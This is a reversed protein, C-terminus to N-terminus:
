KKDSKHKELWAKSITLKYLTDKDTIVFYSKENPEVEYHIIPKHLQECVDVLETINAVRLKNKFKTENINPKKIASAILRDYEKLIKNVEFHYIDKKRKTNLYLYIVLILMILAVVSLGIGANFLLNNDIKTKSSSSIADNNNIGKSSIAIDLTQESLPIIVELKNTNDKKEDDIDKTSEVEMAVILNSDAVLAYDKKFNNAYKNYKNYDIDVEENIVFDKGDKLEAKEDLLTYVNEHLVKTSDDRDTIVIKATIKYNYAYNIEETSHLQYNFDVNVTNILSAIYKMGKPLFSEEYYNNEKLYVKYDASGKESYSVTREKEEKSTSEKFCLISFVILCITPVILVWVWKKSDFKKREEVNYKKEKGEYVSVNSRM